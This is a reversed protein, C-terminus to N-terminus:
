LEKVPAVRKGGWRKLIVIFETTFKRPFSMIYDKGLTFQVGIWQVQNPWEGKKFAVWIGIAALISFIITLDNFRLKEGDSCSGHCMTLIYNTEPKQAM